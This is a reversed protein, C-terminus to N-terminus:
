LSNPSSSLPDFALAEEIAHVHIAQGALWCTNGTGRDIGTAAIQLAEQMRKYKESIAYLESAKTIPCVGDIITGLKEAAASTKNTM